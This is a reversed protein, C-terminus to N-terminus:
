LGVLCGVLTALGVGWGDSFSRMDIECVNCGFHLLFCDLVVLKWVELCVGVLVGCGACWM